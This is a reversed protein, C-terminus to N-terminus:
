FAQSSSFSVLLRRRDFPDRNLPYAFDLRLVGKSARPLGIRIGVGVDSKLQPSRLLSANTATGSDFFAALGPSVLQFLERGIFFRQELNLILNRSGEFNQLRYGRLGNSGDAFFQVERDLNWGSNLMLRGVFTQPVETQFRHVYRANASLIANRWGHDIRSEFAISPLIFTNEGFSRGVTEAVRVYQTGSRPSVAAEVSFQQGLNFDEYRLDNNVFNLKVFNNDVRDFRVFLYQFRRNTPLSDAPRDRLSLFTDSSSRFGATIRMARRDTPDIAFGTAAVIQRHEQSFRASMLGQEFLRDHQRLDDFTLQASWRTNFSYFPRAISLRHDFGDSNKAYTLRSQWYPRIFACDRYDFAARSRDAGKNFSISAQRGFGALNNDTLSVGFTGVGGKSGLESGPELSWADQTTVTVDVLGDHPASATISASKLFSFARLNRESEALREPVYPDGEQFLLFGRIVSPRTEVHIKDAIRYLWGASVEENSYVNVNEITITGIRLPEAQAQSAAAVLILFCVANKM